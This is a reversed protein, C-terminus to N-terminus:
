KELKIGNRFCLAQLKQIEENLKDIRRNYEFQGGRLYNIYAATQETDTCAGPTVLDMGKSVITKDRMEQPNINRVFDDISNFKRARPKAIGAAQMAQKMQEKSM